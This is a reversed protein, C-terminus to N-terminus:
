ISYCAIAFNLIYKTNDFLKADTQLIDLMQIGFLPIRQLGLVCVYVSARVHVCVCVCM